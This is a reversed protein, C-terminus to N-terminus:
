SERRDLIKQLGPKYSALFLPEKFIYAAVLCEFLRNKAGRKIDRQTLGKKLKGVSMKDIDFQRSFLEMDAIIQFAFPYSSNNIASMVGLYRVNRDEQAFVLNYQRDLNYARGKELGVRKRTQELVADFLRRTSEKYNEFEKELLARHEGESFIFGKPNEESKARDYAQVYRAHRLLLKYSLIDRSVKKAYNDIAKEQAEQVEELEDELHNVRIARSAKTRPQVTFDDNFGSEKIMEILKLPNKCPAKRGIETMLNDWIEWFKAADKVPITIPVQPNEHEAWGESSVYYFSLKGQWFDYTGDRNVKTALDIIMNRNYKDPGFRATPFRLSSKLENRETDYSLYVQRNKAGTIRQTTSLVLRGGKPNRNGELRKLYEKESLTSLHSYSRYTIKRDQKDYVEITNKRRNFKAYGFMGMQKDLVLTKNKGVEVTIFGHDLTKRESSDEGEEVDKVGVGWWMQPKLKAEKAVLYAAGLYTFCDSEKDIEHLFLGCNGKRIAESFGYGIEIFSNSYIQEATRLKSRARRRYKEAIWRALEVSEKPFDKM